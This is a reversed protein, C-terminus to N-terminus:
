QSQQPPTITLNNSQPAPPQQQQLLQQQRQRFDSAASNLNDQQDVQFEDLSRSPSQQVRHLLDFAGEMQGSGRSSFPDNTGEGSQPNTLLPDSNGFQASAPLATMVLGMGTAAVFGLLFKFSRSTIHHTNM